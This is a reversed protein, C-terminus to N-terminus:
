VPLQAPEGERAITRDGPREVDFVQDLGVRRYALLERQETRRGRVADAPVKENQGDGAAEDVDLGDEDLGGRRAADGLELAHDERRLAPDDHGVGEFFREVGQEASLLLRRWRGRRWWRAGRRWRGRRRRRLDGREHLRRAVVVVRRLGGEFCA